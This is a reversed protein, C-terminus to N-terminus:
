TNWASCCQCGIEALMLSPVIGVLSMSVEDGLICNKGARMNEMMWTLSEVQVNVKVAERTDDLNARMSM